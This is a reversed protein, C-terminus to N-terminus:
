SPMERATKELTSNGELWVKTIYLVTVYDYKGYNSPNKHFDLFSIRM